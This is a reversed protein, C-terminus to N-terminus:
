CRLDQITAGEHAAVCEVFERALGTYTIILAFLLSVLSRAIYLRALPGYVTSHVSAYTWSACQPANGFDVSSLQVGSVAVMEGDGVQAYAAVLKDLPHLTTSSIEPSSSPITVLLPDLTIM